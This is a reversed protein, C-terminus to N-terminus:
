IKSTDDFLEDNIIEAVAFVKGFGFFVQHLTYVRSVFWQQMVLVRFNLM